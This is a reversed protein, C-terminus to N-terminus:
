GTRRLRAAFAGDWGTRQPLVVLAGSGDMDLEGDEPPAWTFERRERLFAEVVGMNEEPELTCTSYVLLGGPPVVGAAGRLIRAQVAALEAPAEPKLRWRADPHRRLTGTGTCPVDLLILDARRLPPAEARAQVVGVPLELRRVNEGLLRLRAASPDAALLYRAGRALSLAKGGPAACLDAIVAHPPPAAYRCVLAAAPDQIFGPVAELAQLPSVGQFRVVGPAPLIGTEAGAERLARAAGELDGDVPVLHHAPITNNLELLRKVEELPWRELWREVMWRPHSEWAALYGAPDEAPDPFVSLDEGAGAAARLVANVMGAARGQGVSRAQEVAQSVAAYDPVGMHLIQYLGMRLVPLLSPHLSEMGRHVHPALLTDLRRQLRVTGFSLDHAFARERAEVGRLARDLAMDLRMGRATRELTDLAAARGPSM